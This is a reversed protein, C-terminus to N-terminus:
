RQNRVDDELEEEVSELWDVAQHLKELVHSVAMEGKKMKRVFRGSEKLHREAIRLYAEAKGKM